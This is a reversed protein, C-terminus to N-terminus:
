MQQKTCLVCRSAGAATERWDTANSPTKAAAAAEQGLTNDTRNLVEEKSPGTHDSDKLTIKAQYIM